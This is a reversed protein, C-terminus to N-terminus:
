GFGATCRRTRAPVRIGNRRGQDGQCKQSTTGTGVADSFTPAAPVVQHRLSVLDNAPGSVTATQGPTKKTKPKLTRTATAQDVKSAIATASPPARASSGTPAHRRASRRPAERSPEEDASSKRKPMAAFSPPHGRASITCYHLAPSWFLSSDRKAELCQGRAVGGRWRPRQNSLFRPSSM